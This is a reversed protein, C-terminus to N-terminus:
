QLDLIAAAARTRTNSSAPVGAAESSLLRTNDGRQKEQLLKAKWRDFLEEAQEPILDPSVMMQQWVESFTAKAAKWNDDGGRFADRLAREYLSYFPLTSEDTRRSTAALNYMVYDDITFRGAVDNAARLRGNKVSLKEPSAAPGLLAAYFARMGGPAVPSMTFRQGMVPVTGDLGLLSGLGDLLPAGVKSLLSLDITPGIARSVGEVFRLLDRAHNTHELRYLIVSITLAGGRYPIPGAVEIDNILLGQPLKEGPRELLCPGVVAPVSVTKNGQIFSSVFVVMPQYKVWWQRAKSLFLENVTLTLYCKDKEIDPAPSEPPPCDDSPLIVAKPQVVEGGALNGVFEAIRTLFDTM